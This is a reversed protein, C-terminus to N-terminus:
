FLYGVYGLGTLVALALTCLALAPRYSLLDQEKVYMRVVYIIFAPITVVYIYHSIHFIRMFSFATVLLLALMILLTVLNRGYGDSLGEVAVALLGVSLAPFLLLWFGFSHTCVFYSGFLAIPGYLLCNAVAESIRGSEKIGRAFRIVFWSFLLLLLSEMCIIKGFSLWATLIAAALSAFLFIRNESSMYVRLLATTVVVALAPEWSVHYDSVALLVGLIVGSLSLMMGSVDISGIKEKM